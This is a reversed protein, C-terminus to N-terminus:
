NNKQAFRRKSHTAKPPRHPSETQANRGLRLCIFHEMPWIQSSIYHWLCLTVWSIMYCATTLVCAWQLYNDSINQLSHTCPRYLVYTFKMNLIPNEAEVNRFLDPTWRCWEKMKHTSIVSVWGNNMVLFCHFLTCLLISVLFCAAWFSPQFILKVRGDRTLRKHWTSGLKRFVGAGWYLLSCVSLVHSISAM